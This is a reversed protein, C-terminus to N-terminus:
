NNYGYVSLRGSINGSTLFTISDFSTTALKCGGGYVSTQVGTTKVFQGLLSMTTFVSEQPRFIDMSLSYSHNNTGADVEGIIWRSISTNAALGGATNGTDYQYLANNYTTASDDSGAARLRCEFAADTAVATLDLLIRYNAYTSTFTSAPASISTVGSFTATSLLVTGAKKTGLATNMSTDIATGLARIASAGDKVLATDDPTTWSYNTTTAM